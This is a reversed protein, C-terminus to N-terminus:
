RGARAVSGRREDWTDRIRCDYLIPGSRVLADHRVFFSAGSQEEFMAHVERNILGSQSSWFLAQPDRGLTGVQVGAPEAWAPSQGAWQGTRYWTPGYTGNGSAVNSVAVRFKSCSAAAVDVLSAAQLLQAIQWQGNNWADQYVLFTSALVDVQSAALYFEGTSSNAAASLSVGSPNGTTQGVYNKVLNFIGTKKEFVQLGFEM